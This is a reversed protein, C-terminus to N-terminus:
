NNNNCIPCAQLRLPPELGNEELLNKNRYINMPLDDAVISGQNLVIVRNDTM